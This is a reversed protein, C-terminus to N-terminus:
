AAGSGRRAMAQAFGPLTKAAADLRAAAPLRGILRLKRETVARPPTGPPLSRVWALVEDPLRLLDLLQTVRARTLRHRRALEAQSPVERADLLRRFEKAQRLHLVVPPLKLEAPRRRKRGDVRELLFESVFNKSRASEPLWELGSTLVPSPATSTADAAGGAMLAIAGAAKGHIRVHRDTVDIREVLHRLYHRSFANDGALFLGRLTERFRAQTAETFLHPPLPRMPVVKGLAATIEERKASLERLRELGLEGPLEGREFADEWRRVKRDVDDLEREFSKRQEETKQRLLGSERVLDDLLERCREPTFLRETLHELVAADLAEVKHRHGACAERGTRTFSRCNYYRYGGDGSARRKGSTELGYSAGCKGCRVLGALLLPSSGTRGTNREPDREARVKQALDFLDRGVIPECPLIIWEDEPLLEGTQQDHKGWAYKGVYVTDSVVRLVLNRTFPRGNRTRAGRRNLERAATKAGASRVYARFIDLVTPIEGPEPVLRGRMLGPKVEIKEVRYGLPARAGPYFGQRAAQRMAASTRMGNVDSEYEDILEFIGEVLKGMPDDSIEQTVALVRIGNKKLAGKLARAKGANRMFRSTHYVLVSDIAADPALVDELMRKFVKRNDDTASAGPEVYETVATYGRDHCYRRMADLQAPISLDKEAQEATSVRAYLVVRLADNPRAGARRKKM